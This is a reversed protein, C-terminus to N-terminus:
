AIWLGGHMADFLRVAALWGDLAVPINVKKTEFDPGTKGFRIVWASDPLTMGYTESFAQAYASVQLPYEERMANSTKWDLIIFGGSKSRAIADLRGGYGYKTSAVVTDGAIIEMGEQSLWSMFNEFGPKTDPELKPMKGAIYDDIAQHIRSGIDAAEDKIKDPQRDARALIPGLVDATITRGQTLEAVLESEALKLAARRAWVVLANTKGGGVIGLIKTVSPYEVGNVAYLHQRRYDRYGVAYVPKPLTATNM